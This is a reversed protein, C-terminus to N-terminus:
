EVYVAGKMGLTAHPDCQYLFTGSEEFTYEYTHGEEEVTESDLPGEGESAVNHSGGNGTWEWTVTTGPSIAIAAPDFLLQEYGVAVTVSDQDTLDVTGDYNDTDDLWGDYGPEESLYTPEESGGESGDGSTGGTDSGDSDAGDDSGNSNGSTCGALLTVGAIGTASVVDRRSFESTVM